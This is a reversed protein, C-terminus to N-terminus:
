CGGRFNSAQLLSAFKVSRVLLATKSFPSFTWRTGSQTEGPLSLVGTAQRGREGRAPSAAARHVRVYDAQEVSPPFFSLQWCPFPWWRNSKYLCDLYSYLWITIIFVFLSISKLWFYRQVTCRVINKIAMMVSEWLGVIRRFGWM